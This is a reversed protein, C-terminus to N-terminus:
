YVHDRVFEVLLQGFVDLVLDQDAVGVVVQCDILALGFDVGVILSLGRNDPLCTKM